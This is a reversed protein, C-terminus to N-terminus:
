KEQIRLQNPSKVEIEPKDKYIRVKGMVCVKKDVLYTVPDYEKFNISDKAMIVATFPNDPYPKEFSIFITSTKSKFTGSVKGCVTTLSGDFYKASDPNVVQASCISFCSFFLLTLFTKMCQFYEEFRLCNNLQM